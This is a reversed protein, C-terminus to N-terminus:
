ARDASPPGPHTHVPVRKLWLRLAALPHWDDGATDNISLAAVGRGAIRWQDRAPAAWTAAFLVSGRQACEM